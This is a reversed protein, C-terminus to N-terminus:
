NLKFLDSAIGDSLFKGKQTTKLKENEIYLLDESLYKDSQALLYGLYDKGFDIEVKELSVGWITRLGTMIYENYRDTTSLLEREIPLEDGELSNIYKANNRVNWGRKKGDFSHASPGIGIYSKGQWYASNSKSYFGKKGFNSLEYHDFNQADLMDILIHFQREAQVDDTDQIKGKKILAELATKPEVTLAYSSIHPIKFDLATAINEKWKEDTLGPIGYILDISINEFHKVALSLCEKAEYANHARNMLQLDEEFFSQVGISLRNIKSGALELIKSEELDDPNAELTIEPDDIVTHFKYVADIIQDIESQHLMSPTGGGFYITEVTEGGLENKRLAIEKVISIILADKKKLSTSFHFDCYYCAQKCFPIHIYIGAM